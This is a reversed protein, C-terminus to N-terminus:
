LAAALQAEMETLRRALFRQEAPNDALGLARRYAGAAEATRGLSEAAGPRFRDTLCSAADVTIDLSDM